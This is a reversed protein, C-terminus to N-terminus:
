VLERDIEESPVTHAGPPQDEEIGFHRGSNKQQSSCVAVSRAEVQDEGQEHHGSWRCRATLRALRLRAPVDPGLLGRILPDMTARWM